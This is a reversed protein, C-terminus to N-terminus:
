SQKVVGVAQKLCLATFEKNVTVMKQNLFKLFLVFEIGTKAGHAIQILCEPLSFYAVSQRLDKVASILNRGICDKSRRKAM